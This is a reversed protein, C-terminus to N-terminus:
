IVTDCHPFPFLSMQKLGQLLCSLIVESRLAWPSLLPTLVVCPLDKGRRLGLSWDQEELKRSGLSGERGGEESRASLPVMVALGSAEALSDWYGTWGQPLLRCVAGNETDEQSPETEKTHSSPLVTHHPLHSRM